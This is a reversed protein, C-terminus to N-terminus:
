SKRQDSVHFKKEIENSLKNLVKHLTKSVDWDAYDAEFNRTTHIKIHVSYKKRKGEVNYEKSHSELKIPEKFHRQIKNYFKSLIENVKDKEIKTLLNLGSLTILNNDM